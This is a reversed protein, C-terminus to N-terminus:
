KIHGRTHTYTFFKKKIDFNWEYRTDFVGESNGYRFVRLLLNAHVGEAIDMPNRTDDCGFFNWENSLVFYDIFRFRISCMRKQLHQTRDPDSYRVYHICLTIFMNHHTKSITSKFIAHELRTNLAFKYM